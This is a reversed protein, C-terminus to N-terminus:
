LVTGDVEVDRSSSLNIRRPFCMGQSFYKGGPTISACALISRERLVRPYMTCVRVNNVDKDGTEAISASAGSNNLAACEVFRRDFTYNRGRAHIPASSIFLRRTRTSRGDNKIDIDGTQHEAM